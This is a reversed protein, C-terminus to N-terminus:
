WPMVELGSMSGSRDKFSLRQGGTSTFAGESLRYVGGHPEVPIARLENAAVLESLTRPEHGAKALYRTRAAELARLDSEMQIDKLRAVWEEHAEPETAQLAMQEAMQRASELQGADASLRTALLGLYRPAQPLLAAQALARGAAASDGLYFTNFFGLYFLIQWDNPCEAAGRELIQRGPLVGTAKGDASHRTIGMGTFRYALAFKRDMATAYDLLRALARDEHMGRAASWSSKRTGLIQIAELFTLDAVLSAFGFSLPRAVEAPFPPIDYAVEPAPPRLRDARSRLAAASVLAAVLLLATSLRFFLDHRATRNM